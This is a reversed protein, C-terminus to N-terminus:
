AAEAEQLRRWIWMDSVSLRDRLQAATLWREQEPPLPPPPPEGALAAEYPLLESLRWRRERNFYTPHPLRATM